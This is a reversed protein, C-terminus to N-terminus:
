RLMILGKRVISLRTADAGAAPRILATRILFSLAAAQYITEGNGSIM